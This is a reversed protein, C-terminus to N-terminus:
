STKGNANKSKLAEKATTLPIYAGGVALLIEWWALPDESAANKSRIDQLLALSEAGTVQGDNNADFEEVQVGIRELRGENEARYRELEIMASSLANEAANTAYLRAENIASSALDQAEAALAPRWEEAWRLRMQEEATSVATTVAEEVAASICGTQPLLLVILLIINANKM